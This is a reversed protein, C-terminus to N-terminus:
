DMPVVGGPLWHRFMRNRLMRRQMRNGHMRSGQLRGRLMRRQMRGCVRSGGCVCLSVTEQVQSMALGTVLSTSFSDVAALHAIWQSEGRHPGSYTDFITGPHAITEGQVRYVPRIQWVKETYM